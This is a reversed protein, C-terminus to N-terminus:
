RFSNNYYKTPPRDEIDREPSVSPSRSREKAKPKPARPKRTKSELKIREAFVEHIIEMPKRGLIKEAVWSWNVTYIQDPIDELKEVGCQQKTQEEMFREAIIYNLVKPDYTAM